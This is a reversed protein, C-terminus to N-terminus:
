MRRNYNDENECFIYLNIKVLNKKDCKKKDECVSM